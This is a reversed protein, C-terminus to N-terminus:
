DHLWRRKNQSLLSFTRKAKKVLGTLNMMGRGMEVVAVTIVIKPWQM